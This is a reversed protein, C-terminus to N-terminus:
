VYERPFYVKNIQRLRSIRRKTDLKNAQLKFIKIGKKMKETVYILQESDYNEFDEIADIITDAFNMASNWFILHQNSLQKNSKEFETYGNHFDSLLGTLQVLFRSFRRRSESFIQSCFTDLAITSLTITLKTLIIYFSLM